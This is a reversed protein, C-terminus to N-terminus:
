SAPADGAPSGAKELFVLQLEDSVTETRFPAYGLKRYLYLNRVSRHGTFLEFRAVGEFAAEIARMLRTGLGQNQMDPHVILRGIYCTDGRVYGRVSGAIRGDATAKLVVQRALDDEMEALTQKLPAITYDNYIAAEARYALRQLDLIEQADEPTAHEIPIQDADPTV